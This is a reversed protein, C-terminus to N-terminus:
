RAAARKLNNVLKRCPCLLRFSTGSAPDYGFIPKVEDIM